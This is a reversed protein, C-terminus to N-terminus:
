AGSVWATGEKHSTECSVPSKSLECKSCTVCLSLSLLTKADVKGDTWQFSLFVTDVMM